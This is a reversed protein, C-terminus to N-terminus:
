SLLSICQDCVRRDELTDRGLIDQLAKFLAIDDMVDTEQEGSVTDVFQFVHDCGVALDHSRVDGDEPSIHGHWEPPCQVHVAAQQSQDQHMAVPM